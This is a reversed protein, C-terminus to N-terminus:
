ILFIRFFQTCNQWIFYTALKWIISYTNPAFRKTIFFTTVSFSRLFICYKGTLFFVVNYQSFNLVFKTTLNFSRYVHKFYFYLLFLHTGNYFYFNKNQVKLLRWKSSFHRVSIPTNKGLYGFKGNVFRNLQKPALSRSVWVSEGVDIIYYMPHLKNMGQRLFHLAGFGHYCGSAHHCLVAPVPPSVASRRGRQQLGRLLVGAGPADAHLQEGETRGVDDDHVAEAAAGHHEAAERVVGRQQGRQVAPLQRM